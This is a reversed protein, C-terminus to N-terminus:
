GATSGTRPPCTLPRRYCVHQWRTTFGLQQYLRIAPANDAEVYLTAGPRGAARVHALGAVVLFRGLGRGRAAPDVGVIYIEGPAATTAPAQGAGRGLAPAPRAARAPPLKVWCFGLMAGSAEDEALLLDRGAFWPQELRAQLDGADWAGQEPHDAFVRNHLALWAYADRHPEFARLRVGAPVAPPRPLREAPVDMQLLVREPTCGVREALNRAGALDGYSWLHLEGAGEERALALVGHLLLTGFGRRRHAPHVVLEANLHCPRDPAPTHYADSHAAAVLEEQRWLLLAACHDDGRVLRLWKHEGFAPVGGDAAQAAQEVADVRAQLAPSLRHVTELRLARGVPRAAANAGARRGGTPTERPSRM